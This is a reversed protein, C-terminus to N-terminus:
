LHFNAVLTSANVAQYTTAFNPDNSYLQSWRFTEHGCSNLVITLTADPPWCLHDTVQNTSGKKKNSTSTSSNCIHPCNKIATMRYNEKHKYSICHSTILTSSWRRESLTISRNDSPKYLPICIRIMPPINEYQMQSRRVIIHWMIGM